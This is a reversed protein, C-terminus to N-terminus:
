GLRRAPWLELVHKHVDKLMAHAVKRTDKMSFSVYLLGFLTAEV